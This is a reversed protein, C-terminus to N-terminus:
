LQQCDRGVVVMTLVITPGYESKIRVISWLYSMGYCKDNTRTEPEDRAEMKM